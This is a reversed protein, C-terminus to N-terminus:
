HSVILEEKDAVNNQTITVFYIGNPVHALSVTAQAAGVYDRTFVVRGGANTIVVTAPQPGALQVQLQSTVPNPYLNFSPTETVAPVETSNVVTFSGTMATPHISCNYNYTGPVTPVYMFFSSASNINANWPAAGAPITLSTTTHTGSVWMWMITDGPHVNLISSPSFSFDQVNVMHTTALVPAYLGLIVTLSLLSKKM